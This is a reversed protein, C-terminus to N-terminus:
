RSLGSILKSSVTALILVVIWAAAVQVLVAPRRPIGGTITWASIQIAGFAAVLAWIALAAQKSSRLKMEHANPVRRRGAPASPRVLASPAPGGPGAGSADAGDM